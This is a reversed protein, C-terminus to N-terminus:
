LFFLNLICNKQTRIKCFMFTSDRAYKNLLKTPPLSLEKHLQTQKATSSM